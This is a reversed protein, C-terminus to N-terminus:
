ALLLNSHAELAKRIQSPPLVFPCLHKQDEHQAEGAALLLVKRVRVLQAPNAPQALLELCCRMLSQVVQQPGYKM